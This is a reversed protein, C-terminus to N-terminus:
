PIYCILHIRRPGRISQNLEFQKKRRLQLYSKMLSIMMMMSQDRPLIVALSMWLEIVGRIESRSQIQRKLGFVHECACM